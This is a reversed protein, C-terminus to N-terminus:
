VKLPYWPLNRVVMFLVALGICWWLANKHSFVSKLDTGLWRNAAQVGYHYVLAIIGLVFLLNQRLAGSINGHLLQHFARQSGCGPCEIGTASYLPCFLLFNNPVVFFYFLAMASLFWLM